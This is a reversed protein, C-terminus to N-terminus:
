GGICMMMKQDIEKVLFQFNEYNLSLMDASFEVVYTQYLAVFSCTEIINQSCGLRYEDARLEIVNFEEPLLWVTDVSILNFWDSQLAKYQEKAENESAFRYYHEIAGGQTQTSFSTGAREIGLRSPAGRLDRSGTEQWINGPFSSTELLLNDAECAAKTSKALCGIISLYLLATGILNYLRHKM